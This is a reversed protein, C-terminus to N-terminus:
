ELRMLRLKSEGERILQELTLQGDIYRLFLGSLAGDSDNRLVNPRALYFRKAMERYATISEPTTSYRNEKEYEALNERMRALRDELEAKEEPAAEALAKETLAIDASRSAVTREYSPNEVPDNMDPCMEARDIEALSETYLELYRIAAPIHQSRPNIFAVSVNM